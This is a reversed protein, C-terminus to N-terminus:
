HIRKRLIKKVTYCQCCGLHLNYVCVVIIILITTGTFFINWLLSNRKQVSPCLSFIINLNKLFCLFLLMFIKTYLLTLEDCNKKVSFRVIFFATFHSGISFKMWSPSSIPPTKAGMGGGKCPSRRAMFDFHISLSLSILGQTHGDMPWGWSVICLPALSEAM